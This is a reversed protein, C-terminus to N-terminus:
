GALFFELQYRDGGVFPEQEFSVTVRFVTVDGPATNMLRGHLQGGVQGNVVKIAGGATYTGLVVVVVFPFGSGNIVCSPPSDVNVSLRLAHFCNQDVIGPLRPVGSEASQAQLITKAKEVEYPCLIKAMAKCVSICPELKHFFDAFTNWHEGGQICLGVEEHMPLLISGHKQDCTGVVRNYPQNHPSQDLPFSQLFARVHYLLRDHETMNLSPPVGRFPKNLMDQSYLLVEPVKFDAQTAERMWIDFSDERDSASAAPTAM